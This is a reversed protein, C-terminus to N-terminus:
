FGQCVASKFSTAETMLLERYFSCAREIEENSLGKRALEYIIGRVRRAHYKDAWMKLNMKRIKMNKM